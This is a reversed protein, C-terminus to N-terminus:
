APHVVAKGIRGDEGIEQIEFMAYVYPGDYAGFFSARGEDEIRVSAVSLHGLQFRNHFFMEIGAAGYCFWNDKGNSSPCYDLYKGNESFCAAFGRYDARELADM